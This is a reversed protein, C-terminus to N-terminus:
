NIEVAIAINETFESKPVTFTFSGGSGLLSGTYDVGNVTLSTVKAGNYTTISFTADAQQLVYDWGHSEQVEGKGTGAYAM